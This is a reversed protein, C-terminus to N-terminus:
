ISTSGLFVWIGGGRIFGVPMGSMPLVVKPESGNSEGMNAGGMIPVAVKGLDRDDDLTRCASSASLGAIGRRDGDSCGKDALSVWALVPAGSSSPLILSTGSERLLLNACAVM